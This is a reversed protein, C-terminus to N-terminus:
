PSFSDQSSGPISIPEVTLSCRVSFTQSVLVRLQLTLLVHSLGATDTRQQFYDRAVRSSVSKSQSNSTVIKKNFERKQLTLSQDMLTETRIVHLPEM